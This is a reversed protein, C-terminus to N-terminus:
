HTWNEIKGNDEIWIEMFIDESVPKGQEKLIDFKMDKVANFIKDTCFKCEGKKLYKEADEDLYGVRSVDGNENITILFRASCDYDHSNKWRTRKLKKFMLDSISYMDRRDIRNPDDVYNVVDEIKEVLGKNITLVKEKEFTRNFVGDWRIVSDSIPFNLTGSFWNIFVRENKLSAGFILKMKAISSDRDIRGFRLDGCGIIDVLFLSDNELKYIAQYGRWCSTSAGNRFALGFLRDTKGTDTSNLYQELILNYVPVTDKRYILYDPMQPSAFASASWMTM